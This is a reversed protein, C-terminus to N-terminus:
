SEQAEEDQQEEPFNVGQVHVNVSIVPVDTMDALQKKMSEQLDWAIQPIKVGFDVNMYVDLTYGEDNQAIKIHKLSSDAELLSKVIRQTGLKEENGTGM